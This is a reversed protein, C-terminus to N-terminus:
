AEVRKGDQQEVDVTLAIATTYHAVNPFSLIATLKRGGIELSM